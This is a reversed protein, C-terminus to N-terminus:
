TDLANNNDRMPTDFVNILQFLYWKTKQNLKAVFLLLVNQARKSLTTNNCPGAPVPFTLKIKTFIM